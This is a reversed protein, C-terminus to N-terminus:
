SHRIGILALRVNLDWDTISHEIRSILKQLTKLRYAAPPLCPIREQSFAQELIFEQARDQRLVEPPPFDLHLNVQLVQRCFRSLLRLEDLPQGMRQSTCTVRWLPNSVQRQISFATRRGHLGHTRVSVSLPRSVFGYMLHPVTAPDVAPSAHQFSVFRALTKHRMEVSATM